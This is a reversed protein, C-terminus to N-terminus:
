DREGFLARGIRILTAGEAIAAEFDGSMGMSLHEMSVGPLDLAAVQQSLLRLQEFYPRVVEQNEAPPAMTMLGKIRVRDLEMLQEFFAELGSPLVGQRSTDEQLNVQVLCDLTAQDRVLRRQLVRALRLRDLSHLLVYRNPLYKVKNTQLHGVMHWRLPLDELQGMKQLAEQVRNEGIDAVGLAHLQRIRQAPFTKAVAVLTIEAPDRGARIAADNIREQLAALNGKM